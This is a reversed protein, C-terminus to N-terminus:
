SSCFVAFPPADHDAAPVAEPPLVATFSASPAPAATCNRMRVTSANPMALPQFVLPVTVTLEAGDAGVCTEAEAATNPAPSRMAKEHLPM